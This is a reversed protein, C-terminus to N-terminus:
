NPIRLEFLTGSPGTELLSLSGGGNEALERSITLGLGTGGSARGSVFAEFLRESIRPPIGPGDDEVQIVCDGGEHAASVRVHGKRDARTADAEIAQRPRPDDRRAAEFLDLVHEACLAAWLALLHHDADTLTGGRRITVLRPDRVKPLIKSGREKRARPAFM